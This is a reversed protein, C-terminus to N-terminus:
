NPKLTPPQEQGRNPPQEQGRNPPQGLGFNSPQGLGRNPAQGLGRNPPQFDETTHSVKRTASAFAPPASISAFSVVCLLITIGMILSCRRITSFM